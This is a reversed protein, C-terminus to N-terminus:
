DAAQRNAALALYGQHLARVRSCLTALDGTNDIVDDAAQLRVARDAQAAIMREARDAPEGDRRILRQRQVAEPCDVVLVRDVLQGFGTEVLLPVVLIQYPGGARDAARLTERRILPHLLQELRQRQERDDFVRSRLRSRDLRGRADLIEPGFLDTIGAVIPSGPATLQRAIRDTDIIPVGLRAFEDAVTTKGSAIGGTLGIRLIDRDAKLM